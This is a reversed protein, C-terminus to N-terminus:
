PIRNLLSVNQVVVRQVQEAKERHTIYRSFIGFIGAAFGIIILLSPNYTTISGTLLLAAGSVMSIFAFLPPIAPLPHMYKRLSRVTWLLGLTGGIIVGIAVMYNPYTIYAAVAAMLPLGLDGEGLQLQSMIPLRGTKLIALFSPDEDEHTAHLYKRYEAIEKASFKGAPVSELHETSIMLAMDRKSITKAVEIMSKTVFVSIYDYVAVVALVVLALEFNLYLGLFIGVGMSSVITVANRIHHTLDKTAILIMAAAISVLFIAAGQLQPAIVDFLALFFFFSTAIVVVAELASYIINDEIHMHSLASKGAKRDPNRIMIMHRRHRNLFLLAVISILVVDLLYSLLLSNPGLIQMKLVSLASNQQMIAILIVGIFQVVLFMAAIDFIERNGIVKIM